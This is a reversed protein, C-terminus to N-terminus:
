REDIEQQGAHHRPHRREGKARQEGHHHPEHCPFFASGPPTACSRRRRELLAAAEAVGDDACDDDDGEGDHDAHRNAQQSRNGRWDCSLRTAVAARNQMLHQGAEIRAPTKAHAM